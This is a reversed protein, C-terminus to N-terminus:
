YTSDVFHKMFFQFQSLDRYSPYRMTQSWFLFRPLENTDLLEQVHEFGVSRFSYGVYDSSVFIPYSEIPDLHFTGDHHPQCFFIVGFGHNTLWTKISSFYKKVIKKEVMFSRYLHLQQYDVLLFFRSQSCFIMTFIYKWM